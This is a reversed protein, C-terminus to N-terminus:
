FVTRLGFAVQLEGQQDNSFHLSALDVGLFWVLWSPGGIAWSWGMHFLNVQAKGVETNGEHTTTNWELHRLSINAGKGPPTVWQDHLVLEWGHGNSQAVRNGIKTALSGSLRPAYLGLIQIFRHPGGPEKDMIYISTGAAITSYSSGRSGVSHYLQVEPLVPFPEAQLAAGKLLSFLLLCSLFVHTLFHDMIPASLKSFCSGPPSEHITKQEM